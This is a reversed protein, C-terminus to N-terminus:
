GYTSMPSQCVAWATDGARYQWGFKVKFHKCRVVADERAIHNVIGEDMTLQGAGCGERSVPCDWPPWMCKEVVVEVNFFGGFLVPLDM